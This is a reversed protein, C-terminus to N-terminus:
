AAPNKRTANQLRFLFAIANDSNDGNMRGQLMAATVHGSPGALATCFRSVFM